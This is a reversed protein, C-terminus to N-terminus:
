EPPRRQKRLQDSSWQNEKGSARGIRPWACDLEGARSFSIGATSVAEWAQFSQRVLDDAQPGTM